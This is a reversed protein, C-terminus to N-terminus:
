GNWVFTSSRNVVKFGLSEYLKRAPNEWTVALEIQKISKESIVLNRISHVLLIRGFGRQRHNPDVVIHMLFGTDNRTIMFCAGVFESNLKLIWSYTEKHMGYHNSLLEHLFHEITATSSYISPFLTQDTTGDVCKLVLRSIEDTNFENFPLFELVDSGESLVTEDIAIPELRMYGRDHQIFGKKVAYESLHNSIWPTPYGSEFVISTIRSAFRELMEDFIEREANFDQNAFIVPVRNIRLNYVLFGRIANDPSSSALITYSGEKQGEKYQNKLDSLSQSEDGIHDLYQGLLDAIDDLHEYDIERIM